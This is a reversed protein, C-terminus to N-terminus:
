HCMGTHSALQETDAAIGTAIAAAEAAGVVAEAAAKGDV